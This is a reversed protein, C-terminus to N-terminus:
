KSAKNRKEIENALQSFDMKVTDENKNETKEAMGHNSSLILKAITSNYDGSLGSNLLRRKQEKKLEELAGSFKENQKAWGEMTSTAFGSWIGFGEITPLNVKIKNEVTESTTGSSKILTYQEDVCTAIYEHVLDVYEEKYTTPRGGPNKKRTKKETM